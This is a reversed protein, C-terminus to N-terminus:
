DGEEGGQKNLQKMGKTLAQPVWYGARGANEIWSHLEHGALAYIVLTQWVPNDLGLILDVMRGVIISSTFFMKTLVKQKGITSDYEGNKKAATIGLWYDIVMLVILAILPTSWGGFLFHFVTAVVALVGNWFWEVRDM